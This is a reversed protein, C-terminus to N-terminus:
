RPAAPTTAEGATAFVEYDKSFTSTELEDALTPATMSSTLQASERERSEPEWDWKPSTSSFRTRPLFRMRHSFVSIRLRKRSDEAAHNRPQSEPKVEGYRSQFGAPVQDKLVQSKAVLQEDQTATGVSWPQRWQVPGEPDPEGVGPFSPFRRKPDELRVGDDLPVPCTEAEEPSPFAARAWGAPFGDGWLDDGQDPLHAVRIRQPARGPNVALQELETDGNSLSRDGSVHDRPSTAGRGLVPLCEEAIVEAAHHRDVEEGNGGDGEVDEVSEDDQRVMAAAKQVELDDLAGRDTPGGLLEPFGEGERRGRLLQEPVAVANVSQLELAAGLSQPQLFDPDRGARRPLRRVDFPQDTGDPAFAQVMDDHEVLSVQVAQEFSIEGVIVPTPGMQAQVLIGRFRSRHLTRLLSGDNRKGLHASQMMTVFTPRGSIVNRSVPVDLLGTLRRRL